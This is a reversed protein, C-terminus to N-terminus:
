RQAGPLSQTMGLIGEQVGASVPDKDAYKEPDQMTGDPNTLAMDRGLSEAEMRSMDDGSNIIEEGVAKYVGMTAAAYQDQDEAGPIREQSAIDFLIDISQTILGGEGFYVAGPVKGGQAEEMEKRTRDLMLVAIQPVTQWLEPGGEQGLMQVINSLGEKSFSWEMMSAVGAGLLEEEQKTAPQDAQLHELTPDYGEELENMPSETAGTLGGADLMRASM